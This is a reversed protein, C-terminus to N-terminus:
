IAHIILSIGFILFLLAIMMSISIATILPSFLLVIGLIIGLISIFVDLVFYKHSFNRVIILRGFPPSPIM